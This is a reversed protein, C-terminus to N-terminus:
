LIRNHYWLKGFPQSHPTNDGFPVTGRVIFYGIRMYGLASLMPFDMGIGALEREIAEFASVAQEYPSASIDDPPVGKLLAYRGWEDESVVGHTTTSVVAGSVQFDIDPFAKQMSM